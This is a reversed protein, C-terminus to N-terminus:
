WAFLFFEKVMFIYAQMSGPSDPICALELMSDDVDLSAMAKRAELINAYNRRTPDKLKKSKNLSSLLNYGISNLQLGKKKDKKWNDFTKQCVKDHLHVFCSECFEFSTRVGNIEMTENFTM